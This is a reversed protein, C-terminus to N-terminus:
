AKFLSPSSISGAALCSCSWFITKFLELTKNSTMEQVCGRLRAGYNLQARCSPFHEAGRLELKTKAFDM